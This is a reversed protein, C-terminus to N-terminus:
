STVQSPRLLTFGKTLNCARGDHGLWGILDTGDCNLYRMFGTWDRGLQRKFVKKDWDLYMTFIEKSLGNLNLANPNLPVKNHNLDSEPVNKFNRFEWTQMGGIKYTWMVYRLILVGASQLLLFFHPMIEPTDQNHWLNGCLIFFIMLM